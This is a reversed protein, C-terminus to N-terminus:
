LAHVVRGAVVTACARGRLRMGTFPTNSSKSAFPPRPTWRAGPDIITVDADMGPRLSGKSKLGLIRAPAASMREVLATPTLGAELLRTLALGLSTELGIIGFPAKAFGLAKRKRTHPAHDSAVVDITGEVLGTRVADRDTPSRLPPNMKYDPDRGPIDADCLTWHHPAAEGTVSLGRAKALALARVTGRTSAHCLHLRGRAAEALTIDRCVMATECAAPIGPLGKAAALPGANMVGNGALNLDECHSLIPRDLSRSLELARRMLGPDRVPRGDESFAAAGAAALVELPALSTGAQGETVTAAFLVNVAAGAARARLDALLGPDDLPPSTNPMALVTTFGGRAAAAAGSAITEAEEFGPERLHVHMDILGPVVWRGSADLCPLGKLSPRKGLGRGITAVKGDEILIDLIGEVRQAPDIVLGDRILLSL